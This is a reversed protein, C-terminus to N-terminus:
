QKALCYKSHQILKLENLNKSILYNALTSSLQNTALLCLLLYYILKKYLNEVLFFILFKILSHNWSSKEKFGILFKRLRFTKFLQQLKCKYCVHVKNWLLTNKM